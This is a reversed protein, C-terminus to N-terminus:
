PCVTLYVRVSDDSTNLVALDPKADGNFDAIALSTPYNGTPYTSQAQFTGTGTGLSIGLANDDSNPVVLDHM